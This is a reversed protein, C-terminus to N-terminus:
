RARVAARIQKVTARVTAAAPGTTHAGSPDKRRWLRAAADMVAGYGIRECLVHIEADEPAQIHAARIGEGDCLSLVEDAEKLAAKMTDLRKYTMPIVGAGTSSGSAADLANAQGPPAVSKERLATEDRVWGNWQSEWPLFLGYRIEGINSSDIFLTDLYARLERRLGCAIAIESPPDVPLKAADCTPRHREGPLAQCWWCGDPAEEDKEATTLGLVIRAIVSACLAARTPQDPTPWAFHGAEFAESLSGRLWPPLSAVDRQAREFVQPLWGSAAVSPPPPPEDQAADEVPACTCPEGLYAASDDANRLIERACTPQHKM